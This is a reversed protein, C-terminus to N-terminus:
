TSKRAIVSIALLSIGCLLLTAPEPVSLADFARDAFLSHVRASPHIRDFFLYDNPNACITDGPKFGTEAGSYCRSTVNSLGFKGPNVAIEDVFALTDFRTIDIGLDAELIDLRQSLTTNFLTSLGNAIASVM